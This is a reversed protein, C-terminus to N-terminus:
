NPMPDFGNSLGLHVLIPCPAHLRMVSFVKRLLYTSVLKRFKCEPKQVNRNGGFKARKQWEQLPEAPLQDLIARLQRVPRRSAEGQFTRLSLVRVILIM